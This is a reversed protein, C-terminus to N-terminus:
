AEVEDFEAESAESGEGKDGVYPVHTVTSPKDGPQPEVLYTSANPFQEFNHNIMMMQMGQEGEGAESFMQLIMQMVKVAEKDIGRMVEDLIVFRRKGTVEIVCLLFLVSVIQKIGDGQNTKLDRVRGREDEITVNIHPYEQNYLDKELRIRMPDVRFIVALTQNITDSIYDLIRQVDEDSVTSLIQLAERDYKWDGLLVELKSNEGDIYEQTSERENKKKQLVDLLSEYGSEM